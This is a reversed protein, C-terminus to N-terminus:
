RERRKLPLAVEQHVSKNNLGYLKESHVQYGGQWKELLDDQHFRGYRNDIEKQVRNCPINVIRSKPYAMGMRTRFFPLFWQLHDEFTNPAAFPILAAMTAIERRDFLHGDVSLPYAWDLEGEAWQWSVMAQGAAETDRLPPLPQEMNVVYCHTLNKGLRLSPVFRETDLAQLATMDVPEVFVIDDVLFLIRDATSTMLISLLAAKFDGMEKRGACKLGAEQQDAFEIIDRKDQFIDMVQAYAARHADTSAAYLVTVAQPPTVHDLYSTLLGHLQMARDKSFIICHVTGFGHKPAWRAKCRAFSESARKERTGRPKRGPVLPEVFSAIDHRLRGLFRPGRAYFDRERRCIAAMNEHEPFLLPGPHDNNGELAARYIKFKTHYAAKRRDSRSRSDIKKSPLLRYLVLLSESLWVKGLAAVRLWFEYDEGDPGSFLTENQFGAYALAARRMMVTSNILYDAAVMTRYSVRGFPAKQFYRPMGEARNYNGGAWVFANCGMMVYDVHDSLFAVQQELKEPLWLDDDDLFAILPANGAMMARNRPVAPTGAHPGPLYQFRKDGLFPRIAKYTENSEGDEAIWCTWHPYQQQQVSALTETLLDGRKYTPIIIDIMM